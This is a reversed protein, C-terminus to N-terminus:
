LYIFIYEPYFSSVAPTAIEKNSIKAYDEEFDDPESNTDSM